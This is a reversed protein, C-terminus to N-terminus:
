FKFCCVCLYRSFASSNSHNFNDKDKLEQNTYGNLRQQKGLNIEMSPSPGPEAHVIAASKLNEPLTNEVVPNVANNKAVPSKFRKSTTPQVTLLLDKGPDSPRCLSADAIRLANDMIQGAVKASTIGNLYKSRVNKEASLVQPKSTACANISPADVCFCWTFDSTCHILQHGIVSCLFIQHPSSLTSKKGDTGKLTHAKTNTKDFPGNQIKLERFSSAGNDRV